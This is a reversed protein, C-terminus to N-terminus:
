QTPRYDGRTRADPKGPIVAGSEERGARALIRAGHQEGGLDEQEAEQRQRREDVMRDVRPAQPQPHQQGGRQEEVGPPVHAEQRQEQQRARDVVPEGRGIAPVKMASPM